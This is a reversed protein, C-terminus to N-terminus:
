GNVWEDELSKSEIIFVGEISLLAIQRDVKRWDEGDISFAEKLALRLHDIQKLDSSGLTNRFGLSSVVQDDINKSISIRFEKIYEDQEIHIFYGDLDEIPIGDKVM